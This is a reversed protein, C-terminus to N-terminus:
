SAAERRAYDLADERADVFPGDSVIKIDPPPLLSLTREAHNRERWRDVSWGESMTAYAPLWFTAEKPQAAAGRGRATVTLRRKRLRGRGGDLGEWDSGTSILSVDAGPWRGCGILVSGRQRARAALRGTLSAAIPGPPATVVVDVGDLLAAVVTSWDPGPYPVLALRSLEVGAEAAAAAGFTPLGVVACWSGAQSAAALLGIVLSTAGSAAVTSGRRLGGGPLLPRLQHIVPLMRDPAGLGGAINGSNTGAAVGTGTAVRLRTVASHARGTGRVTKTVAKPRGAPEVQAPPDLTPDPETASVVATSGPSPTTAPRVLGVLGISRVLAAATQAASSDAATALGGARPLRSPLPANDVVIDVVTDGRIDAV